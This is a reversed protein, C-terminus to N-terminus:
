AALRLFNQLVRQGAEGSKEPHFQVAFINEKEAVAIFESGYTCTARAENKAGGNEHSGSQPVAAFSHAFYFYADDAIGELLGSGGNAPRLQNWGMHPLKDAGALVRVRGPLVKLGSLEPAEESTEYLAQLGLCIGLFPVGRRILAVLSERLGNEDLARILASYHGVGPLVVVSAAAVVEPSSTRETQTGLRVLAREVSPLNGAGYDILTVKM